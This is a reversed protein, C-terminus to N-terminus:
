PVENQAAPAVPIAKAPAGSTWSVHSGVLAWAGACGAALWGMLIVMGWLKHKWHVLDRVDVALGAVAGELRDVRQDLNTIGSEVRQEVRALSGSMQVLMTLISQVQAVTPHDRLNGESLDVALTNSAEGIPMHM